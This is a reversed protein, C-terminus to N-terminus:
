DQHTPRYRGYVTGNAFTRRDELRLPIQVGAPLFPTGEGVIVPVVFVDFRDVLGARVAQAALSPGGISIESHAEGKMRRVEGPDFTRWITTRATSPTELTTSCVIKDASRWGEAFDRIYEPDDAGSGFTEWVALVEYMRRGLLYTGIPRSLDNVFLHVEEDPEAWEFGGDADAVYGDLSMIAGYSVDGM